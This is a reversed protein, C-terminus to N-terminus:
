REIQCCLMYRIWVIFSFNMELETTIERYRSKVRKFILVYILKRMYYFLISVICWCRLRTAQHGQRIVPRNKWSTWVKGVAQLDKVSPWLGWRSVMHQKPPNLWRIRSVKWSGGSQGKNRRRMLLLFSLPQVYSVMNVRNLEPMMFGPKEGPRRFLLDLIRVKM